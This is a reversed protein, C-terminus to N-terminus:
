ALVRRPQPGAGGARHCRRWGGADAGSPGGRRGQDWAADELKSVQDVGAAIMTPGATGPRAGTQRRYRAGPATPVAVFDASKKGDPLRM